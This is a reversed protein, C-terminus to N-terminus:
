SLKLLEDLLWIQWDIHLQYQKYQSQVLYTYQRSTTYVNFSGRSSTQDKQFWLSVTFTKVTLNFETIWRSRRTSPYFIVIILREINVSANRLCNTVLYSCLIISTVSRWDVIEKFSFLLTTEPLHCISDWISFFIYIYYYIKDFDFFKLKRHIVCYLVSAWLARISVGIFVCAFGVGILM